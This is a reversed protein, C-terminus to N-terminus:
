ADLVSRVKRGLTAPAVPKQLFALGSALVGHRVVADDTYGSMFLVKMAPRITALREALHRGSMRPMVVDTLLLHILAPHQECALLADGGNQATLVTYGLRRLVTSVITRVQDDDEVLLITETGRPVDERAPPPSPRADTPSGQHRPLYLEFTTGQGPASSVWIHGGSQRVIGFVTALGLGTGKGQEKTTFFPEFVRAKTEEDMGVGTDKVSVLVYDGPFVDLHAAAAAADFNVNQLEITLKGGTPMADRSNVALNVIVQDIQTPDAFVLGLDAATQVALEVDEGLLRRLMKELAGVSDGLDVARPQLVQVRGLALLQRTLAVARDVATSIELVDARMPDREGLENLMLGTYGVIVSLINNFDHAVGGALRGIAEMKMASRLQEELESRATIDETHALVCDPQVPVYTVFLRKRERNTRLTYDMERRIVRDHALAGHIDQVIDGRDAGFIDTVTAGLRQAITGKTITSAADNFDALVFQRTGEREILQWAYTPVPMAEFQARLRAAALVNETVEVGWGCIGSRSGDADVLPQYLVDFFREEPVGGATRALKARLSKAIFPEGTALIRDLVDVLGQEVIEPMADAVRRGILDDRGVMKVYAENVLQYVHDPGRLVAITAPAKEVITGLRQREFELSALLKERERLLSQQETIDVVVVVAGHAGGSEPLPAASILVHGRTGDFRDIDLQVREVAQGTRLTRAIPWEDPRVREGTDPWYAVYEAYEEVKSSYPARGGYISAAAPNAHTVGGAANAIWIGVPLADVIAALRRRDLDGAGPKEATGLQAELLAVRARLDELEGM